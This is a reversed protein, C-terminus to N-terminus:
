ERSLWRVVLGASPRTTPWPGQAATARVRVRRRRNGTSATWLWVEDPFALNAGAFLVSQQIVPDYAFAAGLARDPSTVLAMAM